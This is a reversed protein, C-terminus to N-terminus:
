FVLISFIKLVMGEGKIRFNISIKNSVEWLIDNQEGGRRGGGGLFYCSDIERSLYAPLGDIAISVFDDFLKIVNDGDQFTPKMCKEASCVKLCAALFASDRTRLDIEFTKSGEMIETIVAAKPFTIKECEKSITEPREDEDSTVGNNSDLSFNGESSLASIEMNFTANDGGSFVPLQETVIATEESNSTGIDSTVPVLMMAPRIEAITTNSHSPFKGETSITTNETNITTNETGSSVPLQKNVNPVDVSNAPDVESMAAAAAAATKSGQSDIFTDGANSPLSFRGRNSMITTEANITANETVLHVPLQENSIIAGISSAADVESMAPITKIELGENNVVTDDINSDLSSSGGSNIVITEMNITTNKAVLTLPFKQSVITADVSNAADLESRALVRVTELGENEIAISNSDSFLLSNGEVGRTNKELELTDTGPPTSVDVVASIHQLLVRSSGQSEPIMKSKANVSPELHQKQVEVFSPQEQSIGRQDESVLANTLSIATFLTNSQNYILGNGGFSDSFTRRVYASKTVVKRAKMTNDSPKKRIKNQIMFHKGRSYNVYFSSKEATTLGNSTFKEEVTQNVNPIALMFKDGSIVKNQDSRLNSNFILMRTNLSKSNEAGVIMTEPLWCMAERQLLPVILDSLGQAHLGLVDSSSAANDIVFMDQEDLKEYHKLLSQQQSEISLYSFERAVTDLEMLADHLLQILFLGFMRGKLRHDKWGFNWESQYKKLECNENPLFKNKRCITSKSTNGEISGDCQFYQLAPPLQEPHTIRTSDPLQKSVFRRIGLTDLMAVGLKGDVEFMKKWRSKESTDLMMLLPRTPHITARAAWLATQYDLSNDTLSFDWNLIDINSGYITKMCLALIPGSPASRIARNQAIFELGVAQFAHRTTEHLVSTYSNQPDNGFGGARVDGATVWTFTVDKHPELQKQLIKQIIRRHFRAKSEKSMLFLKDLNANDTLLSAFHGYEEVLSQMSIQKTKRVLGLLELATKQPGFRILGVKTSMLKHTINLEPEKKSTSQDYGLIFGIMLSCVIMSVVQLGNIRRLYSTLRCTRKRIQWKLLLENESIYM